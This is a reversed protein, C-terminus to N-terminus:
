RHNHAFHRILLVRLASAHDSTVGELKAHIAVEARSLHLQFKIKGHEETVGIWSTSTMISNSSYNHSTRNTVCIM